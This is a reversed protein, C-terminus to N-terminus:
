DSLEVCSDGSGDNDDDSTGQHLFPDDNYEDVYPLQLEPLEKCCSILHNQTGDLANSIGCVLFSKKVMEENKQFYRLGEQIWQCCMEKSAAVLKTVNLNNAVQSDVYEIWKSRLISKFPKNLCVDLPQVKSTCGGPIIVVDMNNAKAEELLKPDEHASFSDIILLTRRGHTYPLVVAKLWRHMLDANMWGKEQVAVLVDPPPKFKLPRKGKFIALAPLMKGSATCSLAVTLRRKEAGCSRVRVEKVGKTSVTKSSLMDFYMPTEDMNVIVEFLYLNKTCLIRVENLFGEIKKELQPPLKQSISTKTQLSLNHRTMFKQLWGTSAKFNVNHHKIM